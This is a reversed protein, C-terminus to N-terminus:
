QATRFYDIPRFGSAKGASLLVSRLIYGGALTAVAALISLRRSPRKKLLTAGEIVLPAIIGLAKYGGAFAAARAPSSLLPQDVRSTEPFIFQRM